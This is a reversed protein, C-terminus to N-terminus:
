STRVAPLIDAPIADPAYRRPRNRMVINWIQWVFWAGLLTIGAGVAYHGSVISQAVIYILAFLCFVGVIASPWWRWSPMGAEFICDRNALSVRRHLERIFKTYEAGLDVTDIVSRASISDLSLKSAQQPWIETIFRGTGLNTPKYGLRIHQVMPYSVRGSRLGISWDLGDNSLRFEYSPGMLRPKYAYTLDESTM